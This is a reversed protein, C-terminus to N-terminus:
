RTCNSNYFDVLETVRKLQKQELKARIEPCNQFYNALAKRKLGFIGQTARMFFPAGRKKLLAVSMLAADEQMYWEMLYHGLSGKSVVKLFYQEGHREDIVYKPDFFLIKQRYQNLRYSEYTIGKSRFAAVDKRKFKKKKGNASTFRIKKYDKPYISSEKRHKVKGYVTDGTNIVLYDKDGNAQSAGSTLVTLSLLLTIAVITQNSKM